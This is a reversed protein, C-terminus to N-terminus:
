IYCVQEGGDDYWIAVADDEHTHREFWRVLEMLAAFSLTEHGYPFVIRGAEILREIRNAIAAIVIVPYADYATVYVDGLRQKITTM